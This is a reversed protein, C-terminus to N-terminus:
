SSVEPDCHDAGSVNNSYAVILPQTQRWAWYSENRMQDKKSSDAMLFRAVRLQAARSDMVRFEETSMPFQAERSIRAEEEKRELEVRTRQLSLMTQLYEYRCRELIDNLETTKM